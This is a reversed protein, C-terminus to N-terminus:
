PGFGCQWVLFLEGGINWREKRGRKEERGRGEESKRRKEKM